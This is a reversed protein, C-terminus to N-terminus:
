RGRIKLTVGPKRTKGYTVPSGLRKIYVDGTHTYFILKRGFADGVDAALLGLHKEKIVELAKSVNMSGIASERKSSLLDAGGFLKVAIENFSIGQRRFCFLMHRISCDVYKFSDECVGKCDKRHRCEPLISHCIAGIRLRRCFLTVSVCSGLVTTVRAPKEAIHLEGPMLYVEEFRHGHKM